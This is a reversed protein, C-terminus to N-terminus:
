KKEITNKNSLKVLAAIKKSLNSEPHDLRFQVLKKMAKQYANRSAGESNYPPPNVRTVIEKYSYGLARYM